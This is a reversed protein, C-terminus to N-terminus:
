RLEPKPLLRVNNFLPLLKETLEPTISSAEKRRMHGLMNRLVLLAKTQIDECAYQLTEMVDELLVEMKSKQIFCM